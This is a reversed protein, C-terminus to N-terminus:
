SIGSTIHGADRERQIGRGAGANLQWAEMVDGGGEDGGSGRM